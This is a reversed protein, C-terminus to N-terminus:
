LHDGIRALMERMRSLREEDMRGGLNNINLRQMSWFAGEKYDGATREVLVRCLAFPSEEKTLWWDRIVIWYALLAPCICCHIFRAASPLAMQYAM